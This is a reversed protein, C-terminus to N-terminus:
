APTGPSCVRVLDGRERHGVNLVFLTYSPLASYSSQAGRLASRSGPPAREHWERRVDNGLFVVCYWEDVNGQRCRRHGSTQRVSLYPRNGVRASFNSRWTGYPFFLKRMIFPRRSRRSHNLFKCLLFFTCCRHITPARRRLKTGQHLLASSM